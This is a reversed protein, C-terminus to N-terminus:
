VKSRPQQRPKKPLLAQAVAPSAAKPAIAPEVSRPATTAKKVQGPATAKGRAIPGSAPKTPPGSFRPGEWTKMKAM